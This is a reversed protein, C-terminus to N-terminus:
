REGLSTGAALIGVAVLLLALWAAVSAQWDRLRLQRRKKGGLRNIARPTYGQFQMYTKSRRQFKHVIGM